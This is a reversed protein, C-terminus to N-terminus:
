GSKRSFRFYLTALALGLLNAMLDYVVVSRGPIYNQHYEDATALLILIAFAFLRRVGTIKHAKMWIYVLLGFVFYVFTHALKDFGLIKFTPLNDSPTSSLTWIFGLWVLSPYISRLLKM